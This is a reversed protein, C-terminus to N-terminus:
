EYWQCSTKKAYVNCKYIYGMSICTKSPTFLKLDTYTSVKFAICESEKWPEYCWTTWTGGSEWSYECAGKVVEAPKKEESATCGIAFLTIIILKKM